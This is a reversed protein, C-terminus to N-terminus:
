LNKSTSYRREIQKITENTFSNITRAKNGELNSGQIAFYYPLIFKKTKEFLEGTAKSSVFVELPTNYFMESIYNYVIKRATLMNKGHEECHEIIERPKPIVAKGNRIPLGTVGAGVYLREVGCVECKLSNAAIISECKHCTRVAAPKAAGVEKTEKDNFLGKWEREDSWNGFDENNNGMDIVRFKPKFIKKTIRGGRGVMQLFLNVSKTKKNLFIVEVDTCDFGTTFVHVNLLIADPTNKFWEILESRNEEKNNSDYMKVPLGELSMAEYLKKNVLTNPNFIMTKKNLALDKYTKVSNQIAEESGFVLGISEETYDGKKPDYILQTTDVPLVFNEDQVLYGKKILENIGIGEILEHYFKALPVKERYKKLKRNCCKGSKSQEHGCKLCKYFNISKEYNPTATLGIVKGEFGELIKMFEGRHAEDIIINDFTSVDVEGKKMRNHLTQVMAVCIDKSLTKSKPILLDHEKSLTASTQHVLEERHVCVLTKGNLRRVLESFIVTKGGGTALSVCCRNKFSLHFLVKDIIEQQYDRLVIM